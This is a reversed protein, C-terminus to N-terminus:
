VVSKRDQTIYIGGHCNIEVTNEGTFSRPACFKVLLGDDIPAGDSLIKGYTMFNPKLEAVSKGSVSAFVRDAVDFAEAGSIRIVAVGGKGMPSSLAAITDFFNM